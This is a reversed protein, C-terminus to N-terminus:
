AAGAPAMCYGFRPITKLLEVANTLDALLRAANQESNIAKYLRDIYEQSMRMRRGRVHFVTTPIGYAFSYFAEWYHAEDRAQCFGQRM